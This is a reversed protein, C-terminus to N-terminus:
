KGKPFPDVILEPTDANPGKQIKVGTTLSRMKIQQARQEATLGTLAGEYRGRM